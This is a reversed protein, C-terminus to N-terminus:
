KSGTQMAKKTRSTAQATLPDTPWYHKPYRGKLDKCVDHYTTRWFGALDQTVQIPRRAPSLLHLLLPVRGEALTPTTALGFLEQLRVALVPQEPDSYDIGIRSGSPVDLHTPAWTALRQQLEWPLRNLLMSHYDLARLQRASRINQCYPLLWQELSALLAAEDSDPWNQGADHRQLLMIRNCLQQVQLPWQLWSLGKRRIQALLAQAGLEDPPPNIDSEDLLLKGLRTQRCARVKDLSEDFQVSTHHDLQDGFHRQIQELSIPAALDIRADPTQDGLEAVVLWPSHCLAHHQRFTAGRGNRLRYNWSGERRRQAIRDPFAFALLPGCDNLNRTGPSTNLQQQWRRSLERLQGPLSSWDELLSILDINRQHPALTHMESILAALDCGLRSMNLERAKIMLHALRPSGGLQLMSTGTATIKGSKDLAQLQQLLAQAQAYAAAPPQDIWLLEGVPTGWRALDLALGSLDAQNIEADSHECLGQHRERSWLRYCSGAQQRGARGRRQEASAKSVAVTTLGSMGTRPNFRPIRSLGTDIVVRVGDITLSSEAISTALVLKRLGAEPAAIAQEQRAVSLGGYLPCIMIDAPLPQQQLARQTREIEARGPLFCLLSGSEHRAIQSLERALTQPNFNRLPHNLYHTEVPFARGQSHIVPTARGLVQHLRAVDPTASMVLIRLDERLLEQVELSLALGLDAPLSREHFEDFLICGIQELGPDDQLMRTLIGETVVEIRTAAGVRNDLRVRYGVTQGVPEGLSRAMYRAANRTALRRPELMLIRRGQLWSANLLQLPIWTTKGAGPPAHLIVRNSNDLAALLEPLIAAVPLSAM